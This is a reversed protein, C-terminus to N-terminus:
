PKNRQSQRVRQVRNGKGNENNLNHSLFINIVLLKTYVVEVFIGFLFLSFISVSIFVSRCSYSMSARVIDSVITCVVVCARMAYHASLARIRCFLVM